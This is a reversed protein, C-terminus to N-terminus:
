EKRKKFFRARSHPTFLSLLCPWQWRFASGTFVSPFCGKRGGKRDGKRGRKRGGKRGGM